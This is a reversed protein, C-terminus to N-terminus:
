QKRAIATETELEDIVEAPGVPITVLRLGVRRKRLLETIVRANTFSVPLPAADSQLGKLQRITDMLGELEPGSMPAIDKLFRSLKKHSVNAVACLFDASCNLESQATQIATQYLMPFNEEEPFL